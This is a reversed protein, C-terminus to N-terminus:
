NENKLDSLIEKAYEQYDIGCEYCYNNEVELSNIKEDIKSIPIAPITKKRLKELVETGYHVRRVIVADTGDFSDKLEKILLDIESIPIMKM